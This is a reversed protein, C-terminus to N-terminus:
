VENSQSLKKRNKLMLTKMYPDLNQEISEDRTTVTKSEGNEM